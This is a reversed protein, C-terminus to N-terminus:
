QGVLFCFSHSLSRVVHTCFMSVWPVLQSIQEAMQTDKSRETPLVHVVTGAVNQVAQNM